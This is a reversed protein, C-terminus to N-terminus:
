GNLARLLSEPPPSGSTSVIVLLVLLLALLAILTLLVAVVVLAIKALSYPAQGFTFRPDQGHVIVRYPRGNYRYAFIYASLAVRQTQLAKLLISVRVNRFRSGPILRDSQLRAAATREIASV